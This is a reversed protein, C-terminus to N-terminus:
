DFRVRPNMQQPSRWEIGRKALAARKASWYEHCFGMFRDVDRFKEDLEKEVEYINEEWAESLQVPDSKFHRGENLLREKEDESADPDTMRLLRYTQQNWMHDNGMMVHYFEMFSLLLRPTDTAQLLEDGVVTECVEKFDSKRDLSAVNKMQHLAEQALPINKWYDGNKENKQMQKLLKKLNLFLSLSTKEGDSFYFIFRESIHIYANPVGYYGTGLVQWHRNLSYHHGKFDFIMKDDTLEDVTFDWILHVTENADAPNPQGWSEGITLHAGKKLESLPFSKVSSSNNNIGMDTSQTLNIVHLRTEMINITISKIPM